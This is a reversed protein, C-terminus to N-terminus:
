WGGKQSNANNSTDEFAPSVFWAVIQFGIWIAPGVKYLVLNSPIEFLVIGLYMLQNGVNYEFQTIGVEKMFNDTMANGSQFDILL